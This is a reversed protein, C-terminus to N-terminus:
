GVAGERYVVEGKKMVLEVQNVGLHYPIERYDAVDLMLLDAEKGFELSGAISARDMAHAANITAASIAEEITMDLDTCALSVVSQMNFTGPLSPSHGSGLAVAVGADILMRAPPLRATQGLVSPAPLLVAVARSRSLLEADVQDCFNLGVINRADMDTALRVAGMRTAYEAHVELLFGFRGAAALFVRAHDVSFGAPDCVIEAFAALRRQRIKPLLEACIWNLERDRRGNFLPSPAYAVYAPVVNACGAAAAASARLAKIEAAEDLGFGCKAQFSTTGHRVQREVVRRAHYELRAPPTSKLHAYAANSLESATIDAANGIPFEFARAPPGILQVQPDCFGPMVVRGAANIEDASRADALNEVRRTPGVNSIIGNKILISGDEIIGLERFSDGRRPGSPGYLTLLQRAGRVLISGATSLMSCSHPFGRSSEGM